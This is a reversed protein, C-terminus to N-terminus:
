VCHIGELSEAEAEGGEGSEQAVLSWPAKHKRRNSSKVKPVFQQVLGALRDSICKWTEEVNMNKMINWNMCSIVESMEAYNGKKFNYKM